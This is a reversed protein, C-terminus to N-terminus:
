FSRPPNNPDVLPAQVGRLHSYMSGPNLQKWIHYAYGDLLIVILAILAIYIIWRDEEWVFESMLEM